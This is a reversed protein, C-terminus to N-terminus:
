LLHLLLAIQGDPFKIIWKKLVLLNPARSVSIVEGHQQPSGVLKGVSNAVPLLFFLMLCSKSITLVLATIRNNSIWVIAWNLLNCKRDIIVWRWTVLSPWQELDERVCFPCCQVSLWARFTSYELIAHYSLLKCLPIYVNWAPTLDWDGAPLWSSCKEPMAHCKWPLKQCIILTSKLTWHLEFGM